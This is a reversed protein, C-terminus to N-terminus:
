FLIKLIKVLFLTLIELYFSLFKEYRPYNKANSEDNLEKQLKIEAATQVKKVKAEEPDFNDLEITFKKRQFKQNQKKEPPPQSNIVVPESPVEEITVM